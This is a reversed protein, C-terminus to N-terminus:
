PYLQEGSADDIVSIAGSPCASAVKVLLEVPAQGVVEATEGLRFVEPALQECDGHALCAAHDIVPVYSM